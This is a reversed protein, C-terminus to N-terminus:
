IDDSLWEKLPVVCAPNGKFVENTFSDVQFIQYQM